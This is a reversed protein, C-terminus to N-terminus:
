CWADTVDRYPTVEGWSYSACGCDWPLWGRVGVIDSYTNDSYYDFETGCRTSQAASPPTAAFVAVLAVMLLVTLVLRRHTTIQRLSSM